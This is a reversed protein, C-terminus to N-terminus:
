NATDGSIRAPRDTERPTRCRSWWRTRTSSANTPLGFSAASRRGARSRGAMHSKGGWCKGRSWRQGSRTSRGGILRTSRRILCSPGSPPSNAGDLARRLAARRAGPEAPRAARGLPQDSARPGRALGHASVEGAQIPMAYRWARTQLIAQVDTAFPRARIIAPSWGVDACCPTGCWTQHLPRRSFQRYPRGAMVSWSGRRLGGGFCRPPRPSAAARRQIRYVTTDSPRLFGLFWQLHGGVKWGTEDPSVM